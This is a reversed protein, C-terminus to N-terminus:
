FEMEPEEGEPWEMSSLNGTPHDDKEVHPATPLHDSESNIRKGPSIQNLAYKYRDNMERRSVEIAAIVAQEDGGDIALYLPKYLDVLSLFVKENFKRGFHKKVAQILISELSDSVPQQTITIKSRSQAGSSKTM